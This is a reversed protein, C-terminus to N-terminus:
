NSEIAFKMMGLVKHDDEPFMKTNNNIQKQDDNNISTTWQKVSIGGNSLLEDIEQMMSKATEEGPFSDDVYTNKLITEVARPYM